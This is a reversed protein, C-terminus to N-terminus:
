QRRGMEQGLAGMAQSGAVAGGPGGMSAGVGAGVVSMAAGWIAGSKQAAAAAALRKKKLKGLFDTLERYQQAQYKNLERSQMEQLKNQLAKEAAELNILNLKANTEAQQAMANFEQESKANRVAFDALQRQNLLARGAEDRRFQLRDQLAENQLGRQTQSLAIQGEAQRRTAAQKAQELADGGAQTASAVGIQRASQAPATKAAEQISMARSADARAAAEPNMVPMASKIRSLQQLRSAV